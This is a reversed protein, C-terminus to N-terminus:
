LGLTVEGIDCHVTLCTESSRGNEQEMKVKVLRNKRLSKARLDWVSNKGRKRTMNM